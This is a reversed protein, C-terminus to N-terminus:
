KRSILLVEAGCIAATWQSDYFEKVNSAPIDVPDAHQVGM